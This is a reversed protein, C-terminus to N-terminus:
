LLLGSLPNSCIQLYFYFMFVEILAGWFRIRCTYGTFGYYDAIQM